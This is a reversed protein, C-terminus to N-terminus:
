YHFGVVWTYTLAGGSSKETNVFLSENPELTLQGKAYKRVGNAFAAGDAPSAGTPRGGLRVPLTYFNSKDTNTMLAPAKCLEILGSENPAMTSIRHAYMIERIHLVDDSKNQFQTDTDDGTDADATGGALVEWRLEEAM